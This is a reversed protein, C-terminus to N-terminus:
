INKEGVNVESSSLAQLWTLMDRWTKRLKQRAEDLELVIKNSIKVKSFSRGDTLVDLYFSIGADGEVHKELINCLVSITVGLKNCEQGVFGETDKCYLEYVINCCDRKKTQYLRNVKRKLNKLFLPATVECDLTLLAARTKEYSGECGSAIEFIRYLLGYCIKFESSWWGPKKNETILSVLETDDWANCKFRYTSAGLEATEASATAAEAM